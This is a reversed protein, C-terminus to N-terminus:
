ARASKNDQYRRKSVLRELGASSIGTQEIPPESPSFQVLEEILQLLDSSAGSNSLTAGGFPVSTATSMTAMVAGMAAAMAIVTKQM